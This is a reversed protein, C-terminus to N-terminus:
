NKIEEQKIDGGTEIETQQIDTAAEIETLDRASGQDFYKGPNKVM